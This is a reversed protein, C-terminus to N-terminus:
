PTCPVKYQVSIKAGASPVSLTDFVISNTNANYSWSGSPTLKGDVSVVISKTDAPRSLRFERRLQFSEIGLTSLQQAWNASLISHFSGGVGNVADFYRCPKGALNTCTNNMLKGSGIVSLQTPRVQLGDKLHNFFNLYTDLRRISTDDEDSIIIVSLAANPRYFGKNCTADVTMPFTLASYAAELGQEHGSGSTGLQTNKQFVVLPDPTSPTIFKTAGHFCGPPRGYSCPRNKCSTVDTSVVGIHYNANVKKAWQFFSTFHSGVATQHAAMSSSDDVVFLIDVDLAKSQVFTDGQTDNTVGLGKLPFLLHSYGPIDTGVSIFGRQEGVKSPTFRLSISIPNGKRLVFPTTPQSVWKVDSTPINTISFQNLSISAPCGKAGTHHLLINEVDIHCSVKAVGMDVTKMTMRLCEPYSTGTLALGITSHEADNSEIVLASEFTSVEMPAFTVHLHVTQGQFIKKPGSVQFARHGIPSKPIAELRSISCEGSGTNSLALAYEFSRGVPSKMPPITISKLSLQCPPAKDQAKIPIELPSSSSAGVIMVKDNYVKRDSPSFEVYFAYENGPQIELKPKPVPLFRFVNDSTGKKASQFYVEQIVCVQKGTNSMTIAQRGPKDFELSHPAVRIQCGTQQVHGVVNLKWERQLNGSKGQLVFAGVHDPHTESDPAFRVKLTHVAGALLTFSTVSNELSFFRALGTKAQYMVSNIEIPVSGENRIKCSKSKSEGPTVYGFDIPEECKYVLLPEQVHASLSLTFHGYADVNDASSSTFVLKAAATAHSKALYEVTVLEGHEKGSRLVLPMSPLSVLRFAGATNESLAIKKVVVDGKGSNYLLVQKQQVNGISASSFTLTDGAPDVALIGLEMPPMIPHGCAFLGVFCLLVVFWRRFYVCVIKM